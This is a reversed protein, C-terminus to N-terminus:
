LELKLINESNIKNGTLKFGIKLYFEEPSGKKSISSTLLFKANYYQKINEIILKIAIKGSGKLQYNKDIMFRWLFPQEKGDSYEFLENCKIIMYFGIPVNDSLIGQFKATPYFLAQAFSYVNAAVFEEQNQHVNLKIYNLYNEKTIDEFAIQSAYKMM